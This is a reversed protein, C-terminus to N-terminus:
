ENIVWHRAFAFLADSMADFEVVAGNKLDLATQLIARERGQLYLLADQQRRIYQGTQQFCIAQATFAASKYLGRLIDESQTYLMNHVCGHYLNCAGIKIARAVAADDLKELLPRMDGLLPKTDYYLQFLDAPEWALLEQKGSLFGCLKDRGPMADLIGQYARIDKPELTDLIVVLDIDSEETAEGRAYSGQLGAFWLRQGFLARLSILFNDTWGTIDM